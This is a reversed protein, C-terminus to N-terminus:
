EFSQTLLERAIFLADSLSSAVRVAPGADYTYTQHFSMLKGYSNDLIVHPIGMLICFIHGHLRDTVVVRGRSTEILLEFCLM